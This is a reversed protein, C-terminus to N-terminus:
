FNVEFWPEKISLTLDVYFMFRVGLFYDVDAGDVVGFLRSFLTLKPDFRVWWSVIM